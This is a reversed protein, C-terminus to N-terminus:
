HQDNTSDREIDVRTMPLAGVVRLYVTMDVIDGCANRTMDCLDVEVVVLHYLGSVNQNLDIGRVVLDGERLRFGIVLVRQCLCLGGAAANGDGAGSRLRVDGACLGIDGVCLRGDSRRLFLSVCRACLERLRLRVRDLGIVIDSAVLLQDLLLLDRLLLKVGDNGVRLAGISGDVSSLRM